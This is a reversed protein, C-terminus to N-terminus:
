KGELFRNTERTLDGMSASSPVDGRKHVIADRGGYKDRWDRLLKRARMLKQHLEETKDEALCMPCDEEIPPEAEHEYGRVCWVSAM